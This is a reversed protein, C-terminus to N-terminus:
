KNKFSVAVMISSLCERSLTVSNEPFFAIGFIELKGFVEAHFLVLSQDVRRIKTLQVKEWLEQPCEFPTRVHPKDLALVIGMLIVWDISFDGYIVGWRKPILIEGFYIYFTSICAQSHVGHFKLILAISQM